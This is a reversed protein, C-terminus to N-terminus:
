DVHLALPSISGPPLQRTLPLIGAFAPSSGHSHSYLGEELVACEPQKVFGCCSELLALVIPKCDFELRFLQLPFVPLLDRHLRNCVGTAVVFRIVAGLCSGM